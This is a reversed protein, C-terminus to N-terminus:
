LDRGDSSRYGANDQAPLCQKTETGGGGADAGSIDRVYLRYSQTSPVYALEQEYWSDGISIDRTVLHTEGRRIMTILGPNVNVIGAFALAMFNSKGNVNAGLITVPYPYISSKNGLIKKEMYEM